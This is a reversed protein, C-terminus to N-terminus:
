LYTPLKLFFGLLTRDEVVTVSSALSIDVLPFSRSNLLYFTRKLVEPTGKASDTVSTVLNEMGSSDLRPVIGSLEANETVYGKHSNAKVSVM